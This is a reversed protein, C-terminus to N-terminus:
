ESRKVSGGRNRTIQIPQQQECVYDMLTNVDAQAVADAIKDM